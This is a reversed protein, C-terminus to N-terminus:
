PAGPALAQFAKRSGSLSLDISFRKESGLREFSIKASQGAQLAEAFVPNLEVQVFCGPHFCSVFPYTVSNGNDIRIAVGKILDVGLPLTIQLYLKDGMYFINAQLIVQNEFEHVQMAHCVKDSSNACLIQWNGHTASHVWNVSSEASERSAQAHGAALIVFISLLLTKVLSTKHTRKM